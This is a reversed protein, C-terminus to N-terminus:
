KDDTEGDNIISQKDYLSKYHGNLGLLENHTGSEAIMGNKLVMITDAEKITSYRHAIIVTTRDKMLKILAAQVIAESETDLSSMPEDLLLIPSNKLIARAIAIRQKQGGSLRIGREGAKTEFGDTM